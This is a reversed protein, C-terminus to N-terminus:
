EGEGNILSYMKPITPFDMYPGLRDFKDGCIYRVDTDRDPTEFWLRRILRRKGTSRRTVRRAEYYGVVDMLGSISNAVETGKGQFGPFVLLEGDETENTRYAHATIILDVPLDVLMPVWSKFFNQTNFYDPKDPLNRGARSRKTEPSNDFAEACYSLRIRDQMTSTGDVVIASFKQYRNRDYLWDIAALATGADSIRRAIGTAGMRAAVKYGPECVLWLTRGPITGALTTKGANSDGYILINKSEFTGADLRAMEAQFDSVSVTQRDTRTNGRSVM